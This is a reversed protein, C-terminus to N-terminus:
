SLTLDKTLVHFNYNYCVTYRLKETGTTHFAVRLDVSKVM